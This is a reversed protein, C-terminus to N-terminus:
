KILDKLVKEINNKLGKFITKRYEMLRRDKGKREEPIHHTYIFKRREIGSRRSPRDSDKTPGPTM